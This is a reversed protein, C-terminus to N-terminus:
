PGPCLRYLGLQLLPLRAAGLWLRSRWAHHAAFDAAHRFGRRRHRRPAVRCLPQSAVRLSRQSDAGGSADCVPHAPAPLSSLFTRRAPTAGCFAVALVLAIAYLGLANLTLALSRPM